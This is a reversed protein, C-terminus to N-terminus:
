YSSMSKYVLQCIVPSAITYQRVTSLVHKQVRLPLQINVWLKKYWSVFRVLQRTNNVNNHSQFGGKNLATM